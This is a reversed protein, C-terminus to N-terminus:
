KYNHLFIRPRIGSIKSPPGLNDLIQIAVMRLQNIHLRLHLHCRWMRMYISFLPLLPILLLIVIIIPLSIFSKSSSILNFIPVNIAEFWFGELKSFGNQFSFLFEFLVVCFIWCFLKEILFMQFTYFIALSSDLLNSLLLFPFLIGVITNRMWNFEKSPTFVFVPIPESLIDIQVIQKTLNIRFIFKSNWLIKLLSLKLTFNFPM